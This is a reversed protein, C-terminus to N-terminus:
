NKNLRKRRERIRVEADSKVANWAAIIQRMEESSEPIEGYRVRQYVDTLLTVENSYDPFLSILQPLFEQPTFAPLRPTDLKECFAMLQQYVRRISAAALWRRAQSLRTRLFDPDFGPFRRAKKEVVRSSIEGNAAKQQTLLRRRTSLIIIVTAVVLATILLISIVQNVITNVQVAKVPDPNNLSQIFKLQELGFPKSSISSLLNNLWPMLLGILAILPSFLLVVVSIGLGYAVRILWDALSVYGVGALWGIGSGFFILVVTLAVIWAFWAVKFAPFKFNLQSNLTALRSTTLSTIAFFLYLLFPALNVLFNQWTTTFGFFFFMLMGLQFSRVSRWANSTSAALTFGRRLLLILFLMQWIQSQLIPLRSLNLLPDFLMHWLSLASGEYIVFRLFGLLCLVIWASNFALVLWRKKTLFTLLRQTFYTSFGLLIFWVGVKLYELPHNFLTCFMVSAWTTEGLYLSIVALETWLDQFFAPKASPRAAVTEM